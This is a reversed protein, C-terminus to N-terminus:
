RYFPLVIIGFELAITVILPFFQENNVYCNIYIFPVHPPPLPSSPMGKHCNEM